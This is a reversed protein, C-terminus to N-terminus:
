RIAEWAHVVAAPAIDSAIRAAGIGDLVILRLRGGSAKKDFTMAEMLLDRPPLDARIPLGIRHLLDRVREVVDSGCRGEAASLAAACILGLGVAEGHLFVRYGTAAEIAHAFTHGLNLLAREGREKEDRMVVGAKLAVNQAVLEALVVPELALINNLNTETWAFLSADGLLGHKVCEALGCRLERVPLTRLTQPDIVVLVPQYFAGILNKGQPVNVGVKGGVSSDVMALLTTPCQVLPVGRLYTAAVFGATDGTVGGGLAVLPSSRELRADLLVDYLRSVTDLTKNPEGADFAHPVVTYGAERLSGGVAEGYLPRVVRDALLACKDHPAVARVEEGLRELAGAGVVVQYRHHPLVLGIRHM